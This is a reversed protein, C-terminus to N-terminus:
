EIDKISIPKYHFKQCDAIDVANKSCDHAIDEIEYNIGIILGALEEHQVQNSLRNEYVMGTNNKIEAVVLSVLAGMSMIFLAVLIYGSLTSRLQTSM